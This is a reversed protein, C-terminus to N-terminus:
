FGPSPQVIEGFHNMEPPTLQPMVIEGFQNMEPLQPHNLDNIDQPQDLAWHGWGDWNNGPQPFGWAGPRCHPCTTGALVGPPFEMHRDRVNATPHAIPVPRVIGVRTVVYSPPCNPGALYNHLTCYTFQQHVECTRTPRHQAAFIENRLRNGRPDTTCFEGPLHGSDRCIQVSVIGAPRPFQRPPLGYHIEEMITRWVINHVSSASRSMRQRRDNGMWISATFYPTSGSFGLDHNDQSTGTKGTIPIDRRMNANTFNVAGGTAEGMRMTDRMTDILLYATTDRLIREPNHPNELVINGQHDVVRTYLVPRNLEGLNAISGYAGALEILRVGHTLGGLTTAGGIDTFGRDDREVLTTLGFNLLYNFMTGLGVHDIEPAMTARVSVVNMSRYIARRANGGLGEFQSGWWNGPTWTGHTFPVDDIVTAPQMIGLDFAPAFTAIPKMQSGPSRTVQTARNLTRNQGKEGRVGRLALVHGTHHDLLVFAAQPQPTTLLLENVVDETAHVHTNKFSEIYADVAAMNAFGFREIGMSRTQNTIPNYITMSFEIDITFDAAPWLADNLFARDVVAQMELNQTSYIRLGGEFIMNDAAALTLGLERALDDRVAVLLADTFCDYHSIIPRTNGGEVRVISNYVTGIEVVTGDAMTHEMTESAEAFEESTIMELRYMSRLVLQARGWNDVPRTDPPFRSPNQTIAAITAAQAITLDWVDVDYYFRAAAQVGYNSRGLNILNLYSELIYQKAAIHDGNRQEALHRELYIALYQEQLKTILDADFRELINKVLQQTITSAGETRAGGTTIITNAARGIARVDIGNHEWFREDEIAIFANQVHVPIEALTVIERNIGRHLTIMEEGTHANIIFSSYSGLTFHRMGIEPASNIIGTFLGVGAGLVGFGAILVVAFVARLLLLSVKNRMRTSQSSQRRKRQKAGQKSYDM